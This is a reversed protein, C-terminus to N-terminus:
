PRWPLVGWHGRQGFLFDAFDKLEPLLEFKCPFPAAADFTRVMEVCFIQHQPWYAQLLPKYKRELQWWADAMHSSKIEFIFVWPKEPHLYIGDPIALHRGSDDAFSIVPTSYYGEDLIAALAEQAKSEYRLGASRAASNGKQPSYEKELNLSVSHIRGTIGRFWSPAPVPVEAAGDASGPESTPLKGSLPSLFM